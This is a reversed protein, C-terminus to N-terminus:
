SLGRNCTRSLFVLKLNESNLLNKIKSDFDENSGDSILNLNIAINNKELFKLISSKLSNLM